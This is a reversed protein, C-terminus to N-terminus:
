YLWINLLLFFFMSQKMTIDNKPVIRYINEIGKGELKFICVGLNTRIVLKGVIKGKTIPKFVVHFVGIDGSEVDFNTRPISSLIGWETSNM